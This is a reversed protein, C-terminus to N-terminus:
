EIRESVKKSTADVQEDPVYVALAGLECGFYRCLSDLNHISANYGRTNLMRSITTRHIGTAVAVDKWEVRRGENFSKKALLESLLFRILRFEKAYM